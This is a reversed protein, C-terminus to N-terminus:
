LKQRELRRSLKFLKQHQRLLQQQQPFAQLLFFFYVFLQTMYIKLFQLCVASRDSAGCQAPGMRCWIHQGAWCSTRRSCRNFFRTAFINKIKQKKSTIRHYHLNRTWQKKTRRRNNWWYLSFFPPFILISDFISRVIEIKLTM